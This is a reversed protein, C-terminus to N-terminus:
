SPFLFRVIGFLGVESTWVRPLSDLSIGFPVRKADGGHVFFPEKSVSVSPFQSLHCMYMTIAEIGCAQGPYNLQAAPGFFACAAM